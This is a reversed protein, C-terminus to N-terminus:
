LVRISSAGTTACLSLQHLLLSNVAGFSNTKVGQIPKYFASPYLGFVACSFIFLGSHMLNLIEILTHGGM